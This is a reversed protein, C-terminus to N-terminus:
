VAFRNKNEVIEPIKEPVDIKKKIVKQSKHM